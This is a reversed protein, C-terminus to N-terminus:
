ILPLFSILDFYNLKFTSNPYLKTTQGFLDMMSFNAMWVLSYKIVNICQLLISPAMKVEYYGPWSNFPIMEKLSIIELRMKLHKSFAIFTTGLNTFFISQYSFLSANNSSYPLHFQWSIHSRTFIIISTHSSPFVLQCSNISPTPPWLTPWLILAAIAFLLFLPPQAVSFIEIISLYQALVQQRFVSFDEKLKLEWLCSKLLKYM